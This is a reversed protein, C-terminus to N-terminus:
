FVSEESTKTMKEVVEEPLGGADVEMSEEAAPAAPAPASVGLHAQVNALARFFSFFFYHSLQKIV